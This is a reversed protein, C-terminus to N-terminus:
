HLGRLGTPVSIEAVPEWPGQPQAACHWGGDWRYYLRERYYLRQGEVVYVGLRADWHADVHPPPAYRPHTKSTQPPAPIEPRPPVPTIVPRSPEPMPAPRAEPWAPPSAPRSGPMQYIDSACGSLLLSGLLLARRVTRQMLDGQRSGSAARARALGIM